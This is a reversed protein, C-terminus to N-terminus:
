SHSDDTKGLLLERGNAWTLRGGFVVTVNM